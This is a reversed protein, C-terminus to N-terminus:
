KRPEKLLKIALKVLRSVPYKGAMQKWLTAPDINLKAAANLRGGNRDVWKVLEEKTM